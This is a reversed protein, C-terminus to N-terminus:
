ASLGASALLAARASRAEDCIQAEPRRREPTTALIPALGAVAADARPAWVDVWKRLVAANEPRRDVAFRALAGSWRQCRQADLRLNSLLLWTQDDGNDRAVEGLQRLWLDDLTPRLVLNVATFSEAWDYATLALEVAKRAPQWCADSEWRPRERTGFGLEPFARQLERTRYAVLSVRRLLDAAAFAACNTVYSCPAMQGLYATCMQLGHLPFRTPALMAALTARWGPALAADRGASAYEDLIGAVVAEQQNQATVYSRYTVQDPDRFDLWADVRLPSRDRYTLFWLNAASSPNQELAADRNKRATYNADHTVIEYESPV